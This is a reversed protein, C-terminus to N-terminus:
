YQVNVLPNSAIVNQLIHM